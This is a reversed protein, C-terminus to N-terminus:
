GSARASRWWREFRSLTGGAEVFRACVRRKALTELSARAAEASQTNYADSDTYRTRLDDLAQRAPPYAAECREDAADILGRVTARLEGYDGSKQIYADAGARLATPALQDKEAVSWFVVPVHPDVRRIERVLPIGNYDPLWLDVVFADYSDTNIHRLAESGSGVIHPSFERLAASLVAQTAEDDEVCLIRSTM